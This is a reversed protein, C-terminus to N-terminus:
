IWFEWHLIKFKENFCIWVSCILSLILFWMRRTFLYCRLAVRHLTQLAVRHLTFAFVRLTSDRRVSVSVRLGCDLELEAWKVQHTWVHREIEWHGWDTKHRRHVMLSKEVRSNASIALRLILFLSRPLFLDHRFM